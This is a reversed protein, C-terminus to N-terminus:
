PRKFVLAMRDTKGRVQPDFVIKTHDDAPNALAKSDEVLEFGAAKFDALVSAKEIRHLSNTATTGAGAVTAHDTVIVLGGPKLAALLAKDLMLADHGKENYTDHYVTGIFIVDYPVAPTPIKGFDATLLHVNPRAAAMADRAPGMKYGDVWGQPNQSDVQGSCVASSLLMSAYGQGAGMDLVHDGPKVHSLVFRTESLRHADNDRQNAPRDTKALVAEVRTDLTAGPACEPATEAMAAGSLAGFSLALALCLIRQSVMTNRGFNIIPWLFFASLFFAKKM